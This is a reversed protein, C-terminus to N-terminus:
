WSKGAWPVSNQDTNPIDKIFLLYGKGQELTTYDTLDIADNTGVELTIPQGNDYMVLQSYHWQTFHEGYKLSVLIRGAALEIPDDRQASIGIMNWGEYLLRSPPLSLVNEDAMFGIAQNEATVNIWYGHLPELDTPTLFTQSVHDLGVLGDNEVNQLAQDISSPDANNPISILNWGMELPFVKDAFAVTTSGSITDDTVQVMVFQTLDSEVSMTAEGNAFTVNEPYDVASVNDATININAIGSYNMDTGNETMARITIGLIDGAYVASADPELDFRTANPEIPIPTEETQNNTFIIDEVDNGDITVILFNQNTNIWGTRMEETVNYTGNSLNAFQFFGENDTITQDIMEGTSENKLMINWNEIGPEGEDWIGNSNNDDVKFGSINFTSVDTIIWDWTVNDSGNENTAIAKVEITGAFASTNTYSSTTVNMDMFVEVDNILWSVNVEQDVTIDFTRMEGIQNTVSLNTPSFNTIEQAQAQGMFAMLLLVGILIVKKDM